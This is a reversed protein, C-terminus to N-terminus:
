HGQVIEGIAQAIEIPVANGAVNYKEEPSIGQVVSQEIGQADCLEEPRVVYKVM